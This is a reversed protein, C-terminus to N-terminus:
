YYMIIIKEYKYLYIYKKNKRLIKHINLQTNNLIEENDVNLIVDLTNYM